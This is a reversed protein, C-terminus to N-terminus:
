AGPLSRRSAAEAVRQKPNLNAERGAKRGAALASDNFKGRLDTNVGSRTRHPYLMDYMTAIEAKRDSLVLAAGASASARVQTRERQMETLRRWVENKYGRVFNVQYNRPNARVQERGTAKCFESYVRTYRVGVNRKWPEGAPEQGIGQLLAYIREWTLGAEKLMVLNLTRELNPDPKPELKSSMHVYVGAYLLELYDLDEEMGVMSVTIPWEPLESGNYIAKVGLHKVFQWHMDMLTLRWPNDGEAIKINARHGPKRREAQPRNAELDAMTIEHEAMLKEALRICTDRETDPTGPHNAREMLKLVQALKDAM